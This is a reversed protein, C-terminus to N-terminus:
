DFLKDSFSQDLSKFLPSPPGPVVPPDLILKFIYVPFMEGSVPNFATCHHDVRPKTLIKM